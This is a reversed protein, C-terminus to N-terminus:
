LLPSAIMVLGVISIAWVITRVYAIGAYYVPLYVVRAWFFIEAGQEVRSGTAGAAHAALALAAFLVFNDVTNRAAREARGALASREPMNERNGFALKLGSPTWGHAGLLASVMLAAWTLIAMYAVTSLLNM